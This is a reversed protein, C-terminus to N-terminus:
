KGEIFGSSIAFSACYQNQNQGQNNTEIQIKQLHLKKTIEFM